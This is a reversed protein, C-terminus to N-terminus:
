PIGKSENLHSFARPLLVMLGPTPTILYRAQLMSNEANLM